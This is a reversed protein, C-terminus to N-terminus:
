LLYTQQNCRPRRFHVAAVRRPHALMHRLKSGVPLSSDTLKRLRDLQPTHQLSVAPLVPLRLYAGKTVLDVVIPIGAQAHGILRLTVGVIHKSLMENEEVNSIDFITALIQPPLRSGSMIKHLAHVSISDGGRSAGIEFIREIM